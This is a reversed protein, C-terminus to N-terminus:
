RNLNFSLLMAAKSLPGFKLCSLPLWQQHEVIKYLFAPVRMGGAYRDLTAADRISLNRILRWWADYLPWTARTQDGQKYYYILAEPIEVEPNGFCFRTVQTANYSMCVLVLGVYVARHKQLMRIYGEWDVIWKLEPDFLETLSRRYLLVSPPGLWNKAFLLHPTRILRSFQRATITRDERQGTEEYVAEYGGFILDIGPRIAQAYQSLSDPGSLWDDDHLIKIWEGSALDLGATWNRPTGLAPHNRRYQFPFTFTQSRVWQEVVDTASDDTVIVEFDRFRQRAIQELSRRLYDPREFAPILISILKKM